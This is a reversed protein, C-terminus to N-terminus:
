AFFLEFDSKLFEYFYSFTTTTLNQNVESVGATNQPSLCKVWGEMPMPTLLYHTIIIIIKPHVIGKFERSWIECAHPLRALRMVGFHLVHCKQNFIIM